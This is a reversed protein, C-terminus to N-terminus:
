LSCLSINMRSWATLNKVFENDRVRCKASLSDEPYLEMRNPRGCKTCNCHNPCVSSSHPTPLITTYKNSYNIATSTPLIEAHSLSTTTYPLSHFNMSMATSHSSSLSPTPLIAQTSNTGNTSIHGFIAVQNLSFTVFIGIAMFRM